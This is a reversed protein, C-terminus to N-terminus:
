HSSAAARHPVRRRIGVTVASIALLAAMTDFPLVLRSLEVGNLLWGGKADFGVVRLYNWISWVCVVGLVTTTGFAVREARLMRVGLYLAAGAWAIDLASLLQLFQLSPPYRLAASTALTLLAVTGTDLAVVAATAGWRTARPSAGEFWEDDVLPSLRVVLAIGFAVLLGLHGIVLVLRAGDDAPKPILLLLPAVALAGVLWRLSTALGRELPHWTSM